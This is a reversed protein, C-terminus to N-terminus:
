HLVRTARLRSLRVTASAVRKAARGIRALREPEAAQIRVMQERLKVRIERDQRDIAAADHAGPPM